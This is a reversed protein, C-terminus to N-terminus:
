TIFQRMTISKDVALHGQSFSSPYSPSLPLTSLFLADCSNRKLENTNSMNHEVTKIANSWSVGM